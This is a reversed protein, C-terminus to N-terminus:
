PSKNELQKKTSVDVYTRTTYAVGVKSQLLGEDPSVQAIPPVPVHPLPISSGLEMLHWGRSPGDHLQM